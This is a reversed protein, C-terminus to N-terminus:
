CRSWRCVYLPNCGGRVNAKPVLPSLCTGGLRRRNSGHGLGSAPVHVSFQAAAATCLTTTGALGWVCVCVCVCCLLHQAFVCVCIYVRLPVGTSRAFVRWLLMHVKQQLIVPLAIACLSLLVTRHVPALTRWAMYQPAETHLAPVLVFVTWVAALVAAVM